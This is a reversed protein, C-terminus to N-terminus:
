EAVLDLNRDFLTALGISERFMVDSDSDVMFQVKNITGLEVLSDVISYLAVDNTINYVPSLFSADLNVYCTGDQTTVNIIKTNPNLVPYVDEGDMPGLLLQEVVLKDMSINGSYVVSRNIAVLGDGTENAFYLKLNTREEATIQAGANDIFTDGSMPGIPLGATDVMTEGSVTCSVTSVGPIQTLTRTVAGRILVAKISDISYFEENFDVIVQSGSIEASVVSSKDTLVAKYANGETPNNLEELLRNLILETSKQDTEDIVISVPLICDEEASLLYVQYTGDGVPEAKECGSILFMIVLFLCINMKSLFCKVRM